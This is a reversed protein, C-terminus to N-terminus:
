SNALVNQFESRVRPANHRDAAIAQARRGYEERTAADMMLQRLANQVAEVGHQSLVYGWRERKAYMVPAIREPGYVLVPTGSAMYAPIKTPMSLRMYEASHKDFNFPLVLLDAGSLLEVISGPDPPDALRVGDFGALYASQAAPSHVSVEISHGARRLNGAAVCIDRLADRQAEEVISGAYRVVFPSGSNWNKRARAQWENMDIANHFPLFEYGFQLRYAECMDECIALRAAARQLLDRFESMVTRRIFPGLLGHRYIVAPWDDMIHVVLPVRYRDVLAATVRIQAMSGLFGYILEPRFKDLWRALEDSMRFNRPLGDGFIARSIRVMPSRVGGSPLVGAGNADGTAMSFPWMPRIEAGTLKYFKRCVSEDPPQFDQHLNAISESPWGRFLNTLTIGGGNMLNFNNSTVVLIRPFKM